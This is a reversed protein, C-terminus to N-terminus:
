KDEKIEIEIVEGRKVMATNVAQKMMSSLYRRLLPHKKMEKEYEQFINIKIIVRIGM